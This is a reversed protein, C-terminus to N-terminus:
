MFHKMDAMYLITERAKEENEYDGYKESKLNNQLGGQPLGSILRLM